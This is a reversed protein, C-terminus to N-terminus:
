KDIEVTQPDPVVKDVLKKLDTPPITAGTRPARRDVKTEIVAKQERYFQDSKASGAGVLATGILTSLGGLQTLWMADYINGAGVLIVALGLAFSGLAAKHALFWAIVSDAREM